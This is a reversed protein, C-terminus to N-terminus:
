LFSTMVMYFIVSQTHLFERLSKVSKYILNIAAQKSIGMMESIEEYALENMYKLYLAEQQRPPLLNIGELLKQHDEQQQQEEILMREYSFEVHHNIETDVDEFKLQNRTSKILSFKLSKFLYGKVSQVEPLKSKRQWLELFLDQICDDLVEPSINLKRGYKYLEKYHCSFIKGFADKDGNRFLQWLEQETM